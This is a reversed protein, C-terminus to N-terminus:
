KFCPFEYPGFTGTPARRADVLMQERSGPVVRYNAEFYQHLRPYAALDGLVPDHTSFAFPVSQRELLALLEAEQGPDSRWRFHWFLHGGAIPREILYGMQFPTQGSVLVRDGSATCDHMYRLLVEPWAGVDGRNWRERSNEGMAQDAQARTVLFDIPPSLLMGAFVEPVRELNNQSLLDRADMCRFASVATFGAVVCALGLRTWGALSSPRPVRLFHAGMAATLPAVLHAYSAERFLKADVLVLVAGALLLRLAQLPPATGERRSRVLSIGASGILLFPIVTSIQAMWIRAPEKAPLWSNLAELRVV